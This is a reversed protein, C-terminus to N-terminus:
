RLWALFVTRGSVKTAELHVRCPAEGGDGRLVPLVFDRELVAGRGAVQHRTFAAVHADRLRAPVLSVVRRGELEAPEWGFRAAAPASVALVRDHDDVAVVPAAARRVGDADWEPALVAERVHRGHPRAVDDDALVDPWARPPAGQAQAIVQECRWDRLAVVERLAPRILLQGAAARWEAEELTRLLQALRDPLDDELPVPVTVTEIGPLAPRARPGTLEAAARRQEHVQHEVARDVQTHATMAANFWEWADFAEPLREGHFLAMERLAAEEHRRAAEWLAVPLDIVVATRGAPARGHAVTPLGPLVPTAPATDPATRLTFWVRKGGPRPEAGVEAALESVVALGRGTTATSGYDRLVPLSADDDDVCVRVVGDSLQVHVDLPTRAHLVSNTVLESTALAADDVLDDDLGLAELAATVFRRAAGVSSGHPPLRLHSLDDPRHTTSM